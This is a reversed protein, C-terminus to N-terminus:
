KIKNIKAEILDRIEQNKINDLYTVANDFTPLEGTNCLDLGDITSYKNSNKVIVGKDIATNILLKTYFSKDNVVNVFQSPMTDIFEEVKNQIWELKSDKSIPKNTLLKLVGLLKERDDEIKGYMKFAEKKSDYKNKSELMEEHERTIAFQYTQNKNRDAWSLAIDEKSLSELIKISIYDMPNSLDFRNNADDKHLAVRFDRWFAVNYVSLDLGTVKELYEKEDTTLVNKISGNRQLPASFKKISGSLMGGAIVHNAEVDAAMGRKRSIFKVLVVENPLTFKGEYQKTEM